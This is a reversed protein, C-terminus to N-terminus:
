WTYGFGYRSSIARIMDLQGLNMEAVVVKKFKKLVELTNKPFPNLHTFHAQSVSKGAARYTDVKDRIAGYTSGWGLVLFM